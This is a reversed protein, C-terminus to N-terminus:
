TVDPRTERGTPSGIALPATESPPVSEDLSVATDHLLEVTAQTGVEDELHLVASHLETTLREWAEVTLSSADM